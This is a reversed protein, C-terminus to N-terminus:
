KVASLGDSMEILTGFPDQFVAFGADMAANKGTYPSDLKVGAAELKKVFEDLAVVELGIRDFARGRTPAVPGKAQEFLINSGPINAVMENGHKVMEAGFNRAYWVQAEAVNPVMMKITDSAIPTALSKDETIRVKVKDPSMLFVQTASGGAMPKIGAEAWQALSGKLDKVTFGIFDLSSGESGALEPPPAAPVPAPAGARGRGGGAALNLLLVGPFKTLNLRGAFQVPQGGLTQWFKNAADLDKVRMLDHGASVGAKNPAPLQALLPGAALFVASIIRSRM